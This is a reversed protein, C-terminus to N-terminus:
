MLLSSVEIVSKAVDALKQNRDMALKRLLNYAEDETCHRQKLIIGKAKEITKRNALNEKTKELEQRLAINSNFRALAVDLVPKIRTATLGDVIFASVGVEVATTIIKNDGTESFIVIPKPYTDNIYKLQSLMEEDTSEVNVVIMDPNIDSAKRFLDDQYGVKVLVDHGEDTLTQYLISDTSISEEILMVKM